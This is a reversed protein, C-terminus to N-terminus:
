RAKHTPTSYNCWHYAERFNISFRKKKKQKWDFQSLLAILWVCFGINQWTKLLLISHSLSHAFSTVICRLFALKWLWPLCWCVLINHLNHDLHTQEAISWRIWRQISGNEGMLLWEYILILQLFYRNNIQDGTFAMECKETNVAVRGMPATKQQFTTLYSM